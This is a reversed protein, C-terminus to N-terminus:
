LLKCMVIAAERVGPEVPYYDKRQGAESFGHHQYLSRARANSQRVELWLSQAAISAAWGDLAHLLTQGHGLGQYAPAVSICLLHGEDVAQMAMFFGLLAGNRVLVQGHYGADLADAFQRQTWPHAQAQADLAAVAPLWPATMPLLQAPAQCELM